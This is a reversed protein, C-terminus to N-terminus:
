QEDAYKIESRRNKWWCDEAQDTCVPKEEGLSVAEIRSESVGLLASMKKVSEARRQGLAVNYERSGREDAHGQILVKAGPNERLYKVHAAVVGRYEDKIDFNDYDYYISRQSPIGSSVKPAVAPSQTSERAVPKRELPQPQARPTPAAGWQADTVTSPQEDPTTGCGGLLLAASAAALAALITRSM